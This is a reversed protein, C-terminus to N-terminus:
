ARDLAITCPLDNVQWEQQALSAGPLEGLKLEVALTEAAIYERHTRVAREVNKDGQAWLRIRDAVELGADKRM